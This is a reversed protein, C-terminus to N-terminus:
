TRTREIMKSRYKQQILSMDEVEYLPDHQDMGGHFYTSIDEAFRCCFSCRYPGPFETRILKQDFNKGTLQVFGHKLRRGDCILMDGSNLLVCKETEWVGCRKDYETSSKKLSYTVPGGVSLVSVVPFRENPHKHPVLTAGVFSLFIHIANPRFDMASNARQLAISKLGERVIEKIMEPRKFDSIWAAMRTRKYNKVQWGDHFNGPLDNLKRYSSLEFAADMLAICGESNIVSRFVYGLGPFITQANYSLFAPTFLRLKEYPKRIKFNGTADTRTFYVSNSKNVEGVGRESSSFVRPPM